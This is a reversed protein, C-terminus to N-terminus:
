HCHQGARRGRDQAFPQRARPRDREAAARKPQSPFNSSLGAPAARLWCSCVYKLQVRKDSAVDLILNGDDTRVKPTAAALALAVALTSAMLMKAM